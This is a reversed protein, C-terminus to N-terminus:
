NYYSQVNKGTVCIFTANNNPANLRHDPRDTSCLEVGLKVAKGDFENYYHGVGGCLILNLSSGTMTHFPVM